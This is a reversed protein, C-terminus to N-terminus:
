IGRGYYSECSRNAEGTGVYVIEPDVPDIAIAGVALSPEHDTLPTWVPRAAGANETKWVGGQAGGAYVVEPNSPHVAIATVRGSVPSSSGATDDVQGAPITNPGLPRWHGSQGEPEDADGNRARAAAFARGMANPPIARAPYVRPGFFWADFLDREGIGEDQRRGEADEGPGIVTEDPDRRGPGLLPREMRERMKERISPPRRQRDPAIRGSPPALAAGLAITTAALSCVVALSPRPLM